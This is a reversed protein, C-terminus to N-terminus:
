EGFIEDLKEVVKDCVGYQVAEDKYVYWEGAIRQELLDKPFTTHEGIFVMLEEIKTQYDMMQSCIQAYTGSMHEASGQHFLFYSRPLMFRKHCSLYIFAGASCCMGMNYGYIPTQSLEIADILSNNVDLSGGPTFFLLKIPQRQSIPIGMDERNWEIIKRIIELSYEDIEEAIWYIRNALDTYFTILEPAPLQLNELGEPMIIPIAPINM